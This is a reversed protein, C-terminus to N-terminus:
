RAALQASIWDDIEEESWLLKFTQKCPKPFGVSAYEDENCFRNVQTRGYGVKDCVQKMTLLRM